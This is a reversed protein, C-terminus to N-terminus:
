RLMHRLTLSGFEFGTRGSLEDITVIHLASQGIDVSATSDGVAVMRISDDTEAAAAVREKLKDFNDSGNQNVAGLVIRVEPLRPDAEIEQIATILEIGINHPKDDVFGLVYRAAAAQAVVRAKRAEHNHRPNLTGAHVVEFGPRIDLYSLSRATARRRQAVDPRRTVFGIFPLGADQVGHHFDSFGKIPGLPSKRANQLSFKSDALRVSTGDIDSMWAGNSLETM